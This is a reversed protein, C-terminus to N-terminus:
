GYSQAAGSEGREASQEGIETSGLDLYWELNDFLAVDPFVFVTGPWNFKRFIGPAVILFSKPKIVPFSKVILLM